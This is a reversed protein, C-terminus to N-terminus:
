SSVDRGVRPQPPPQLLRPVLDHHGRMRRERPEDPPAPKPEPRHWPIRLPQDPVPRPRPRPLLDLRQRPRVRVPEGVPHRLGHLTADIHQERGEARRRQGPHRPLREPDRHDAGVEYRGDGGPLERQRVRAAVEVPRLAPEGCTPVHHPPRFPDERTGLGPQPRVEPEGGLCGRRRRTDPRDEVTETRRHQRAGRVPRGPDIGGAVPPGGPRLAPLGRGFQDVEEPGPRGRHEDAEAAHRHPLALPEALQHGPGHPPGATRATTCAPHAPSPPKPSSMRATPSTGCSQSNGRVATTTWWAPAPVM